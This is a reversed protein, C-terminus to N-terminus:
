IFGHRSRLALESIAERGGRAPVYPKAAGNRDVYPLDGHISVVPAFRRLQVVALVPVAAVLVLFARRSVHSM